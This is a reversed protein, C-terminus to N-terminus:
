NCNRNYFCNTIIIKKLNDKTLNHRQDSLIKNYVSFSREVDASSVPCFKFLAVEGPGIGEPLSSPDGEGQILKAVTRLTNVGPNKQMVTAFKMKLRDGKEGPTDDINSQAKDMLAFAKILTLGTEELQTLTAPLSSLHAAIFALDAELSSSEVLHQGKEISVADDPNLLKGLITKVKAYNKAYFLAAEIWTGWRTLIPKPPLPLDPHTEKWTVVRSPAKLFIKKVTAILDNVETFMERVMECVRHLGHAFCTVHIM